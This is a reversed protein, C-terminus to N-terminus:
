RFFERREQTGLFKRLKIATLKIASSSTASGVKLFVDAEFGAFAVILGVVVAGTVHVPEPVPPPANFAGNPNILGSSRHWSPRVHSVNVKFTPPVAASQDLLSIRM